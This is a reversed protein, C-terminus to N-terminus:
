ALPVLLSPMKCCDRVPALPNLLDPLSSLPATRGISIGAASPEATPASNADRSGDSRSFGTRSPAITATASPISINGSM